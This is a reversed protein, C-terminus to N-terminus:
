PGQSHNSSRVTLFLGAGLQHVSGAGRCHPLSAGVTQRWGVWKVRCVVSRRGSCIVPTFREAKPRSEPLCRGYASSTSPPSSRCRRPLPRDCLLGRRPSRRLKNEVGEVCLPRPRGVLCERRSRRRGSSTIHCANKWTSIRGSGGQGFVKCVSQLKM